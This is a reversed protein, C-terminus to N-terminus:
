FSEKIRKLLFQFFSLNGCEEPDTPESPKLYSYLEGNYRNKQHDFAAQVAQVNGQQRFEHAISDRRVKSSTTPLLIVIRESSTDDPSFNQAWVNEKGIYIVALSDQDSEEIAALISEKIVQDPKAERFIPYYETATPVEAITTEQTPVIALFFFFAIFTSLEPTYFKM